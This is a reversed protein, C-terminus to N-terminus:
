SSPSGGFTRGNSPSLMRNMGVSFENWIRSLELVYRRGSATLRFYRRPHGVEPEVWESDVFREKRLRRLIPHIVGEIVVFGGTQELLRRIEASYLQGDWLCALVALSLSGKRLQSEWMPVGTRKTYARRQVNGDELETSRNRVARPLGGVNWIGKEINNEARVIEGGLNEADRATNVHM